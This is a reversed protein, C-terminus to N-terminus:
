ERATAPGGRPRTKASVARTKGALLVSLRKYDIPKAVHDIFGARLSRKRDREQGYGTVAILAVNRLEKTAQFHRALEYGDMGPLGIDVLAFDPRFTKAASLGSTADHAIEVTHGGEELLLAL